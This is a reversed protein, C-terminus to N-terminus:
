VLKRAIMIGDRIPVLVNEVRKDAMVMKNYEIIGKTEEDIKSSQEVVKGSWLVNDALIFGGKRVKDFVLDYYKVYNKKDADIFVMDFVADISPIIDVANGTYTKIKKEAGAEKIYRTVIPALEENIDITHIIGNEKMGEAICLSSYGTFTGIELVLSPNIMCSLMKLFRGQVHGSLMQPMMVQAHTERSLKKLLEPEPKTHNEVYNELLEPLFEM